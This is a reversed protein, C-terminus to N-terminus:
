NIFSHRVQNGEFAHQVPESTDRSSGVSISKEYNWANTPGRPGMFCRKFFYSYSESPSVPPTLTIQMRAKMRIAISRAVYGVGAWTMWNNFDHEVVEWSGDFCDRWDRSDVATEVITSTSIKAKRKSAYEKRKSGPVSGNSIGLLRSGGFMLLLVLVSYIPVILDIARNLIEIKFFVVSVALFYHLM